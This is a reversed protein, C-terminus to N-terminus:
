APRHGKHTQMLSTYAGAIRAWSMHADFLREADDGLRRRADLERWLADVANVFAGPRGDPVLRLGPSGQLWSDTAVGTIGVVPVGHQLMAALTSRRASAGNAYPALGLTAKALVTSVAADPIGGLLTVHDVDLGAATSAQQLEELSRGIWTLRRGGPDGAMWRAVAAVVDLQMAAPQGFLVLGGDRVAEAASRTINSGVPVVVVPTAGTVGSAVVERRGIEQTLVLVSAERALHQVRRRLCWRLWARWPSMTAPPWYEHVTVILPHGHSRVTRLWAHVADFRASPSYQFLVGGVTAADPLADVDQVVVCVDAVGADRVATALRAAYDGIGDHHGAPAPSVVVWPLSPAEAGPQTHASM